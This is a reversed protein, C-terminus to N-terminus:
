YCAGTRPLPEGVQDALGQEVEYQMVKPRVLRSAVAAVREGCEVRQVMGGSISEQFVRPARKSM